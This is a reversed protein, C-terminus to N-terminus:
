QKSTTKKEHDEIAEMLGENRRCCLKLDEVNITNRKAHHAFNELDGSLSEAQSWLMETMAAIFEPTANTHQEMCVEDIIKGVAFWLSSKLRTPLNEDANEGAKPPMKRGLPNPDVKSDCSRM